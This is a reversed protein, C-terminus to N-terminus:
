QPRIVVSYRSSVAPKINVIVRREDLVRFTGPRRQRPPRHNLQEPLCPLAASSDPCHSADPARWRWHIAAIESDRHSDTIPKRRAPLLVRRTADAAWCAIHTSGAAVQDM